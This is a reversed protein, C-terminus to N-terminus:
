GGDPTAEALRRLRRLSEVNRLHILVDLMWAPPGLLWSPPGAAPREAITIETQSDARRVDLVIAMTGLPRARGRLVLRRPPDLEVVTTADDLRALGAGVSHHFATGPAPWGADVSRVQKAGVVWRPYADADALIEFVREPSADTRIRTRAM